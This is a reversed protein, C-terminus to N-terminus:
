CATASPFPWCPPATRCKTRGPGCETPCSVAPASCKPATSRWSSPSPRPGRPSSSGGRVPRREREVDHCEGEGVSRCGFDQWFSRPRFRRDAWLAGRRVLVALVLLGPLLPLWVTLLRHGLVVSAAAAGSAGSPCAPPLVVARTVAILVLAHLVAFGLSGGWLVTARHARTHVGRLDATVLVRARRWRPWLVAGALAAASWVV